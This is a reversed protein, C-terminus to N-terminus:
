TGYGALLTPPANIKGAGQRNITDRRSKILLTIYMSSSVYVTNM